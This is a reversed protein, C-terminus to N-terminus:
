EELPKDLGMEYLIREAEMADLDDVEFIEVEQQWPPISAKPVAPNVPQMKKAPRNM